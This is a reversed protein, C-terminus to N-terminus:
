CQVIYLDHCAGFNIRIDMTKHRALSSTRTSLCVEASSARVGNEGPSDPSKSADDHVPAM